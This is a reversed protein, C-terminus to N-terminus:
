RDSATQNGIWLAIRDFLKRPLKKALGLFEAHPLDTLAILLDEGLEPAEDDSGAPAPSPPAAKGACTGLRVPRGRPATHM